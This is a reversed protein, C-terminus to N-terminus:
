DGAGLRANFRFASKAYSGGAVAGDCVPYIKELKWQAVFVELFLSLGALVLLQRCVERLGDLMALMM